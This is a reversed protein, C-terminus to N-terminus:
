YLFVDVCVVPLVYSSAMRERIIEHLSRRTSSMGVSIRYVFLVVNIVFLVLVDVWCNLLKGCLPFALMSVMLCKLNLSQKQLKQKISRGAASVCSVAFM